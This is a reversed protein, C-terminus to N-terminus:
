ADILGVIDNINELLSVKLVYPFHPKRNPANYYMQIENFYDQSYSILEAALEEKASNLDPANVVLDIETLALTISGDDEPLIDAQFRYGDLLRLTQELSISLFYDRNRKVVEPKGRVVGDIFMGWEKRAETANIITQM